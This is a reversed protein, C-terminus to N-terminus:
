QGDHLQVLQQLLGQARRLVLLHPRCEGGLPAAEGRERGRRSLRRGLRDLPGVPRPPRGAM